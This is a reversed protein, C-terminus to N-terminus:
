ADEVPFMRELFGSEIQRSKRVRAAAPEPFKPSHTM